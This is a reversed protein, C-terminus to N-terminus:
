KYRSYKLYSAFSLAALAIVTVYVFTPVPIPDGAAYSHMGSLYYNVGFYTMLVGSFAVLSLLNFTFIDKMGPINRSHIVISYLIITILSWTEKPDWGWYRGWSENAWVAGLFTGITLFYLGLTLTKYNIVTLEDITASIRERNSNNAFLLLIM